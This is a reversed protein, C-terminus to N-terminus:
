KLNCYVVTSKEVYIIYRPVKEIECVQFNMSELVPEAMNMDLFLILLVRHYPLQQFNTSHEEHDQLLCGAVIGLIQM